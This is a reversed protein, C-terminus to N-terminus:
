FYKVIEPFVDRWHMCNRLKEQKELWSIMFDHSQFDMAKMMKSVKHDSGYKDIVVSRLATPSCALDTKSFNAFDINLLRQEYLEIISVGYVDALYNELEDLYFILFPNLTAGTRIVTINFYNKCDNLKRLNRDIQHWKLPWRVYEFRDGIGDISFCLDISKFKKWMELTETDPLISGNTTYRLNVNEPNPVIKLLELQTSTYFPEGGLFKLERLHSLDLKRIINDMCHATIVSTDGFRYSSDEKRNLTKWQSSFNDSCMVCAANCANDMQVELNILNDGDHETIKTFSSHRLSQKFGANERLQCMNCDGSSYDTIKNM